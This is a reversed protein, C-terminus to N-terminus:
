CLEPDLLGLLSPLQRLLLLFPQLERFPLQQQPIVLVPQLQQFPLQQQSLVLFPQLQQFPLQQQSLVLFPQLQQFPLQQQASKGHDKRRITKSQIQRVSGAICVASEAATRPFESESISAASSSPRPWTSRPSASPTPWIRSPASRACLPAFPKESKGRCKEDL